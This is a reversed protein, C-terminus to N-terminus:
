IEQNTYLSSQSALALKYIFAQLSQFVCVCVCVKFHLKVASVSDLPRVVPEVYVLRVPINVAAESMKERESRRGEQVAFVGSAGLVPTCPPPQFQEARWEELLNDM